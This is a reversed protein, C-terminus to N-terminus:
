KEKIAEFASEIKVFVSRGLPAVIADTIRYATRYGRYLEWLKGGDEGVEEYGKSLMNKVFRRHRLILSTRENFKM